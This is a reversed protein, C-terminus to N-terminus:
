CHVMISNTQLELFVSVQLGSFQTVSIHVTMLNNTQLKLVENHISYVQLGKLKLYPKTKLVAVTMWNTQVNINLEIYLYM